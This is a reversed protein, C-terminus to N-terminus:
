LLELDDLASPQDAAPDDNTDSSLEDDLFNPEELPETAMDESIEKQSSSTSDKASKNMLLKLNSCVYVLDGLKRSLLKNRKQSHIHDFCSWNKECASSSAGQSLVRIAFRQLKPTQAGYSM